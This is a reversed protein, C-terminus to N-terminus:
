ITNTKFNIRQTKLKESEQALAQEGCFCIKIGESKQSLIEKHITQQIDLPSAEIINRKYTQRMEFTKGERLWNYNTIARNAPSVPADIQQIVELKAEELDQLSFHGEALIAVSKEFSSFTNAINPDRYSHFYFTGSATNYAVGAGYAGGKERIEKHLCKNELLHTALTLYPSNQHIYNITKFALCNYSVSSPIIYAQDEIKPLVQSFSWPLIEKSPLDLLDYFHNNKLSEYIHQDGSVVLHINQLSFIKEKLLCLTEIVSPLKERINKHIKTVFEYFPLGYWLNNIYSSPSLGSLALQTGYRLANKNLRSQLSTYLQSILEEIRKSDSFSTSLCFDKFLEFLKHQYRGLCKGKLSFSPKLELYNSTQTHLSAGGSIGGTFAQIYELNDVYNRSGCGIEPLLVSFLQLYLLENVSLAPLDMVLDAYLINNTFCNHHYIQSKQYAERSLDFNKPAKPVDDITLQPLCALSDKEIQDQYNELDQTEQIIHAVEVSSLQAKILNLTEKEQKEEKDLLFPDPVMELRVFHNNKLFYRSILDSLYSPNKLKERLRNFLAHIHLTDEISVGHQKALVTRMFLNLGFPHNDGNIETRSFELQHLASEIHNQCFDQQIIEKLTKRLIAEINEITNTDCGKCLIIYPVESMETDMFTDVQSCFNSDLLSRKLISGDNDMLIHDIIQLALIDDQKILPATVWGFAIMVKKELDEEKAIPFFDRATIPVEFKPQVPLPALPPIPEISKLLNEELFDLHEDLPFNGYFFFLCLSPHYFKKHFAKLDEHALSPIHLPDGGSNHAYTLDPYLLALMKHWMRSEISSLSGKMENFVIGKFTLDAQPDLPDQFELRHGEQLFSLKKLEPNFVADIYVDLLNYFDKKIQTAAPYCTFDSGTFANLFTNLSRRGMSFFPDKVPFKKSGCLVTHELIHAVGNSSDPRTQLSLCFLNEPDDHSVHIVKAGCIIHELEILESRIEHIISRKTVIFNKYRSGEPYAFSSFPSM